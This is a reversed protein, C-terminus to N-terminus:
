EGGDLQSVQLELEKFLEVKSIGTCTTGGELDGVRLEYHDGGLWQYCKRIEIRLCKSM